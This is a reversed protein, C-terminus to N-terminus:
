ICCRAFSQFSPFVLSERVRALAKEEQADTWSSAAERMLGDGCHRGGRYCVSVGPTPPASWANPGGLERRSVLVRLMAGCDRPSITLM